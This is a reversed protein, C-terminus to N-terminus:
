KSIYPTLQKSHIHLNNIRLWSTGDFVYPIKRQESDLEWKYSYGTYDVLSWSGKSGTVIVGNTHHPDLGGIFIGMSAADFLSNYEPFTEYVEKPYKTDKWHIPLLQIRTKNMSYFDSLCQMETMFKNSEKIYYLIYECFDNLIFSSKIYCIGSAYRDYNFFMYSMESKSFSHLWRVPNDYILNDLEMFFVNELNKQIILNYLLFFREFSYIFIKERGKLNHVICFKHYAMEVTTNFITHTVSDHRIIAVNYSELQQLLPSEYDSVIFYIPGSYFLRLQHVTDISYSPLPGTFSYVVNMSKTQESQQVFSVSSEIRTKYHQLELYPSINLLQSKLDNYQELCSTQDFEDWSKLLICPFQKQIQITFPNELMIPIVGLYLCEWTRHCDVGNGEPCIAFKHSALNLLYTSYDTPSGFQLGKAELTTKCPERKSSNTHTSFYFYFENQKEINSVISAITTLIASNGHPWMKNAMGIPISELKEHELLTNQAFWRVVLSNELLPMYEETINTDENHSVLVFPNKIFQLKEMFIKLSCSYCFVLSPNDWPENLLDIRMHKETQVSIRPNRHLDYEVGCYVPCLEQFQEGSLIQNIDM